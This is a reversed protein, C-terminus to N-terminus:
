LHFQLNEKRKEQFRSRILRRLHPPIYKTTMTTNPGKLLLKKQPVDEENRNQQTCSISALSIKPQHKM